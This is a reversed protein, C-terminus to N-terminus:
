EWLEPPSTSLPDCTPVISDAYRRAWALWKAADSEPPISGEAKLRAAVVQIYARIRQARRRASKHHV